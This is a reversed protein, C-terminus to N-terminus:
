PSLSALAPALERWAELPLATVDDDIVQICVHDAGGDLQARVRAVIADVDGWAV